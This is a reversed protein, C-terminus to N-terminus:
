RWPRVGAVDPGDVPPRTRERWCITAARPQLAMGESPPPVPLLSPLSQRDPARVRHPIQRDRHLAQALVEEGLCQVAFVSVYEAREVHGSQRGPVVEVVEQGSVPQLRRAVLLDDGSVPLQDGLHSPHHERDAVVGRFDLRHPRLAARM